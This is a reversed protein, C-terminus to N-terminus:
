VSRGRVGSPHPVSADHLRVGLRPMGLLALLQMAPHAVAAHIMAQLGDREKTLREIDALAADREAEVAALRPCAKPHPHLVRVLRVRIGPSTERAYKLARVARIRTVAEPKCDDFSVVGFENEYWYDRQRDRVRWGLTRAEKEAKSESM